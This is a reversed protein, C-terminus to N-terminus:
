GHGDGGSIQQVARTRLTGAFRRTRMVGHYLGTGMAAGVFLVKTLSGEAGLSGEMVWSGVGAKLWLHQAALGAILYGLFAEYLYAGGVEGFTNKSVRHTLAFGAGILGCIGWFGVLAWLFPEEGRALLAVFLAPVGAWAVARGISAWVADSM